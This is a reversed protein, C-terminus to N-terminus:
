SSVSRPSPNPEIAPELSVVDEARAIPAFRNDTYATDNQPSHYEIAYPSSLEFRSTKDHLRGSVTTGDRLTATVFHGVYSRLQVETMDNSARDLAQATM